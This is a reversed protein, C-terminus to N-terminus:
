FNCKYSKAAGKDFTIKSFPIGRALSQLVSVWISHIHAYLYIYHSTAHLTQLCM